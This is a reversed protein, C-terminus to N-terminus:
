AIFQESCDDEPAHMLEESQWCFYLSLKTIKFTKKERVQSIYGFTCVCM